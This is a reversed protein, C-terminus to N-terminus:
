KSENNLSKNWQIVYRGIFQKPSLFVLAILKQNCKWPSFLLYSLTNQLPWRPDRAHLPRCSCVPTKYRRRIRCSSLGTYYYSCVRICRHSHRDLCEFHTRLNLEMPWNGPQQHLMRISWWKRICMLPTCLHFGPNCLVDNLICDWGIPPPMYSGGLM